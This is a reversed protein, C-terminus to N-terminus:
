DKPFGGRRVQNRSKNAKRCAAQFSNTFLLKALVAVQDALGAAGSPRIPVEFPVADATTPCL